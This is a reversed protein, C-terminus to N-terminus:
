RSDLLAKCIKKFIVNKLQYLKNVLKEIVILMQNIIPEEQAKM